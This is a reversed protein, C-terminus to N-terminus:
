REPWDRVQPTAAYAIVGETLGVAVSTLLGASFYELAADAVFTAVLLAKTAVVKWQPINSYCFNYKEGYQAKYRDMSDEDVDIKVASVSCWSSHIVGGESTSEYDPVIAGGADLNGKIEWMGDGNTDNFGYTDGVTMFDWRGDSNYDNMRLTQIEYDYSSSRLEVENESVQANLTYNTKLSGDVDYINLKDLRGDYNEDLIRIKNTIDKKRWEPLVLVEDWRDDDNNDKFMGRDTIVVPNDGCGRNVRIYSLIADCDRGTMFDPLGTMGWWSNDCAEEEDVLTCTTQETATDYSYDRCYYSTSDFSVKLDTFCPSALYFLSDDNPSAKDLVMIEGKRDKVSQPYIDGEKCALPRQLVLQNAKPTLKQETCELQSEVLATLTALGTYTLTTSVVHDTFDKKVLKMIEGQADKKLYKFLDLQRRAMETQIESYAEGGAIRQYAEKLAAAFEATTAFGPEIIKSLVDNDLSNEFASWGGRKKFYEVVQGNVRKKAFWSFITSKESFKIGSEVLVIDTEKLASKIGKAESWATVKNVTEKLSTGLKKVSKIPHLMLEKISTVSKVAGKAPGGLLRNFPIAWILITGAGDWLTSFSAWSKDEGSPFSQFYVLFSPEGFGSIYEKPASLLGNGFHEKLIFNKVVCTGPDIPTNAQNSGTKTGAATIVAGTEPECDFTTKETASGAFYKGCVGDKIDKNAALSSIACTLADTSKKATEFDATATNPKGFLKDISDAISKMVGGQTGIAGIVILVFIIVLILSLPSKMMESSQSKRMNLNNYKNPIFSSGPAPVHSVPLIQQM